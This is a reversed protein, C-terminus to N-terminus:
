SDRRELLQGRPDADLDVREGRLWSTRVVGALTAGAYPTVPHRHELKASDVVLTADPAITCLDADAGVAIRGKQHLGVLDAPGRAMWRAVDVLGFGRARAETWVASLGLQLSAIGGWAGAFDGTDLHKAAPPSPSHDSVVADLVGARLGEWLLDQEDRGRIPPCCKYPTAGDPVDEAALTLYHPCTEATIRVGHSKAETLLPLVSGSAVHLVHVRCGTRAALDIVAAVASHEAASPRSALFDTYRPGRRAERILLPDEAHVVLLGDFSALERMVKEVEVLDLEPFEEVGSPVLFCKFGFVGQEWLPQLRDLSGPVAGGWFGVDVFAQPAAVRRKATLAPVDVTPPISNLPMDVLTTVGGAAAARTATTFGEWATRGPENVHVHTDVLGPLLVEDEAVVIVEAAPLEVGGAEVAVILGGAIGLTAPRVQGDVVARDAHVVLDLM